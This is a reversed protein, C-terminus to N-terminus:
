QPYQPPQGCTFLAACDGLFAGEPKSDCCGFYVNRCPLTLTDVGPISDAIPITQSNQVAACFADQTMALDIAGGIDLPVASANTERCPGWTGDPLCTKFGTQSCFIGVSCDEDCNVMMGPVCGCQKPTGCELQQGECPGWTLFEEGQALCTQEGDSCGGVGRDGAPGTWCARTQGARQCSCGEQVCPEFVQTTPQAPDAADHMSTSPQHARAPEAMATPASADQVHQAGEVPASAQPETQM